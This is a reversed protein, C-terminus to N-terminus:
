APWIARGKANGKVCLVAHFFFRLAGCGLTKHLPRDRRRLGIRDIQDRQEQHGSSREVDPRQPRLLGHAETRRRYGRRRRRPILALATMAPCSASLSSKRIVLAVGDDIWRM